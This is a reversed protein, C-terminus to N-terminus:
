PIRLEMGPRLDQPSSILGSNAGHIDRWKEGSGYYREAIRYLTEGRQVTHTRREEPTNAALAPRQQTDQRASAAPSRTEPIRLRMEPTLRNPDRLVEKNAELIDRWRTATGYYQESISSLTQGRQVIHTVTRPPPRREQRPQPQQAPRQRAPPSLPIEEPQNEEIVDRIRAQESARDAPRRSPGGVEIVYSAPEPERAEERVTPADSFLSHYLEALENDDPGARETESAGDQALTTEEHASDEGGWMCLLIIGVAILALIGLMQAEKLKM